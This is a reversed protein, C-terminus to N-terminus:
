AAQLAVEAQRVRKNEARNAATRARKTRDRRAKDAARKAEAKNRAVEAARSEVRGSAWETFLFLAIVFIGFAKQGASHGAAVNAALSLSGATLQTWFGIKNTGTSYKEGRWFLGLIAMGDIMFPLAWYEAKDLGLHIEGTYLIHKFSFAAALLMFGRVITKTITTGNM